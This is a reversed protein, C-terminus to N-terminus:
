FYRSSRHHTVVFTRYLNTFQFSLALIFPHSIGTGQRFLTKARQESRLPKGDGLLAHNVFM